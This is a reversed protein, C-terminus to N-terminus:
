NVVNAALLPSLHCTFLWEIGLPSLLPPLTDYRAKCWSFPFGCLCVCGPVPSEHEYSGQTWSFIIHIHNKKGRILRGVTLGTCGLPEM